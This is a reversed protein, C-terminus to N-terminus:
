FLEWSDPSAPDGGIYREGDEVTGIQPANPFKGKNVSSLLKNLNSERQQSFLLNQGKPTLLQRQETVYKYRDNLDNVGAARYADAVRMVSDADINEPNLTDIRGKLAATIQDTDGSLLAGEIGQLNLAAAMEGALVASNPDGLKVLSVLLGAVAQRNPNKPDKVAKLLNQVKEYNKNIGSIDADIKANLGEIESFKKDRLGKDEGIMSKFLEKTAFDMEGTQQPAFAQLTSRARQPNRALYSQVRPDQIVTQLNNVATMAQQPAVAGLQAIQKTDTADIGSSELAAARNGAVQGINQPTVGQFDTMFQNAAEQNDLGGQALLNILYKEDITDLLGGLQKIPEQMMAAESAGQQAGLMRAQMMYRPDLPNIAQVM